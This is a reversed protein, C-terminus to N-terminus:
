LGGRVREVGRLDAQLHNPLVDGVRVRGPVDALTRDVGRRGNLLEAVEREARAHLDVRNDLVDVAEEFVADAVGAAVQGAGLQM